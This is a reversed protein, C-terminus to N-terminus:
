LLGFDYDELIQRLGLSFRRDLLGTTSDVRVADQARDFLAVAFRDPEHRARYVLGDPNEPHDHLAAAWRQAVKFDGTGLRGDAGMPVLGQGSTLDVLRLARLSEVKSVARRGLADRTVFDLAGTEHGFTEVFAVAPDEALYLVGYRQDPADFRNRGTRGFFLADRDASHIRWWHRFIEEIRLRRRDLDGPPEPHPGPRDETDTPGM